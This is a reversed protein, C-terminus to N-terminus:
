LGPLGEPHSRFPDKECERLFPFRACLHSTPLSADRVFPGETRSPSAGEAGRDPARLADVSDAHPGSVLQYTM